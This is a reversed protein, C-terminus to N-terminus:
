HKGVKLQCLSLIVGRVLETEGKLVKFPLWNIDRNLLVRLFEEIDKKISNFRCEFFGRELM